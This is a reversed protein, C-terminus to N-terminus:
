GAMRATVQVMGAPVGDLRYRGDKGSLARLSTGAVTVTAGGLGAGREIRVTGEIAGSAGARASGAPSRAPTSLALFGALLFSGARRM